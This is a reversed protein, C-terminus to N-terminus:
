IAMMQQQKRKTMVFYNCYLHFFNILQRQFVAEQNHTKIKQAVLGESSM